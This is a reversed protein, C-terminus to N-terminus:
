YFLSYYVPEEVGQKIYQTMYHVVSRPQQLQDMRLIDELDIDDASFSCLFAFAPDDLELEGVVWM